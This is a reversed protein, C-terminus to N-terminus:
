LSYYIKIISHRAEVKSGANSKFTAGRSWNNSCLVARKRCTYVGLSADVITLLIGVKQRLWARLPVTAAPRPGHGDRAHSRLSSWLPVHGTRCRQADSRTWLVWQGRARHLSFLCPITCVTHLTHTLLLDAGKWWTLNRPVHLREQCICAIWIDDANMDPTIWPLPTYYMIQGCPPLM